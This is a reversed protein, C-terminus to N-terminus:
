VLENCGIRPRALYHPWYTCKTVSESYLVYDINTQIMNFTKVITISVLSVLMDILLLAAATKKGGGTGGGRYYHGIKFTFM